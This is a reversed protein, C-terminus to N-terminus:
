RDPRRWFSRYQGLWEEVDALPKPEISIWHDRGAIRRTVLGARELHAIHKSAAVLSASSFAALETVRMDRTALRALMERRFPHALAAYTANLTSPGRIEQARRWGYAPASGQKVMQNLM